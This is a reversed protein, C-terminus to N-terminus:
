ENAIIGRRVRTARDRLCTILNDREAKPRSYFKRRSEGLATWPTLTEVSLKRPTCGNAHRRARARAARREKADERLEDETRDCAGILWIKLRKRDADTVRLSKAIDRGTHMTRPQGPPADSIGQIVATIVDEPPPREGPGFVPTKGGFLVTAVTAAPWCQPGKWGPARYQGPPLLRLDNAMYYAWRRWNFGPDGRRNHAITRLNGQRIRSLLVDKARAPTM